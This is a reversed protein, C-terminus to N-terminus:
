LRNAELGVKSDGGIIDIATSDNITIISNFKEEISLDDINISIDINSTLFPVIHISPTISM